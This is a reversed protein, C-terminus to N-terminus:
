LLIQITQRFKFFNHVFHVFKIVNADFNQIPIFAYRAEQASLAEVTAALIGFSLSLCFFLVGTVGMTMMGTNKHLNRMLVVSKVCNENLIAKLIEFFTIGSIIFFFTGVRLDMCKCFKEVKLSFPKM